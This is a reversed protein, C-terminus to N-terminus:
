LSQELHAPVLLDGEMIEALQWGPMVSAIARDKEVRDVKVKAVLQGGRSVLLQGNELVGQAQGADLVLFRWKPDWVLVKSKLTAPMAFCDLDDTNLRKRLSTLRRSFFDREDRTGAVENELNKIKAAANAAEQATLGSAEYRRLRVQALDRDREATELGLALKEARQVEVALSATAEAGAARAVQLDMETQKLESKTQALQKQATEARSDAQERAATELRMRSQLRTIQQSTKVLNLGTVGISALLCVIL